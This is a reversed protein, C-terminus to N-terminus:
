AFVAADVRRDASLEAEPIASLEAKTALVFSAEERTGDASRDPWDGDYDHMGLQTAEVPERRLYGALFTKWAADFREDATRPAVASPPSANAVPHHAAPSSSASCASLVVMWVMWARRRTM